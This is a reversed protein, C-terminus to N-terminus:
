SGFVVEATRDPRTGSVKTVDERLPVKSAEFEESGSVTERNM